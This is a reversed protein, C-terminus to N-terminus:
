GSKVSSTPFCTISKWWMQDPPPPPTEIAQFIELSEFKANLGTELRNVRVTLTPKEGGLEELMKRVLVRAESKNPVPVSDELDLILADSGYQPAKRMWDEKNGPVYMSTRLPRATAM